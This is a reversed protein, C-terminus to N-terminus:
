PEYSREDLMVSKLVLPALHLQVDFDTLRLGNSGGLASGHPEIDIHQDAAVVTLEYPEFPNWDAQPQEPIKGSLDIPVEGGRPNRIIVKSNTGDGSNEYKFSLRYQAKTLQASSLCATEFTQKIVSSQNMMVYYGIGTEEFRAVYGQEGVRKWVDDWGDSFDGRVILNRGRIEDESM